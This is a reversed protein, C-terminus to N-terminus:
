VFIAPPIVSISLQFLECVKSISIMRSPLRIPTTLMSISCARLAIAHCNVSLPQSNSCVRLEHCRNPILRTNEGSIRTLVSLGQLMTFPTVNCCHYWTTSTYTHTSAYTNNYLGLIHSVHTHETCEQRCVVCYMRTMLSGPLCSREVVHVHHAHM